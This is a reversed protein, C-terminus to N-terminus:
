CVMIMLACGQESAEEYAAKLQAFLHFDRDYGGCGYEHYLAKLQMTSLVSLAEAADHVLKPSILGLYWENGGKCFEELRQPSQPHFNDGSIVLSLPYGSRSFVSHFDSWAKDISYRPREPIKPEDGRLM